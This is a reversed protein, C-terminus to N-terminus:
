YEDHRRWWAYPEGQPVWGPADQWTEQRGYPTADLLSWVSGLAEVGRSKTFYTRYVDDGDRLFVNLGFDGDAVGADRDFRGDGSSHWPIGDWGMRQKVAAIEAYPRPSVLTFSTDRAHLHSLHPLNDAVMSCGPCPVPGPHLMFTYAILQPRGDFLELLSVRGGPGEFAYDTSFAMAPQRRREAALADGARMAAKEKALLREHAVQWEEPSVVPPHAM